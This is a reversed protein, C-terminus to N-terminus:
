LKERHGGSDGILSLSFDPEDDGDSEGDGRDGGESRIDPRYLEGNSKWLQKGM